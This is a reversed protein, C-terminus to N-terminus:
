INFNNEPRIKEQYVALRIWWLSSIHHFLSNDSIIFVVLWQSTKNHNGVMHIFIQNFSCKYHFKLPVHHKKMIASYWYLWGQYISLPSLEYLWVQYVSLPIQPVLLAWWQLYFLSIPYLVAISIVKLTLNWFSKVKMNVLIWIRQPLIQQLGIYNVTKRL